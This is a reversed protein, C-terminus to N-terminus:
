VTSQKQGAKSGGVANLRDRRLLDAPRHQEILGALSEPDVHALGIASLALTRMGPRAHLTRQSAADATRRRIPIAIAREAM